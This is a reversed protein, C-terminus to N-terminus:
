FSASDLPHDYGTMELYGSGRLPVPGNKGQLFVAGEWYSPALRSSGSALEQSPLPTTVVGDIGRSPVAIKWRIPSRAPGPQPRAQAPLTQRRLTLNSLSTRRACTRRAARRTWSHERPFLTSPAM